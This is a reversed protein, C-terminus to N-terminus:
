PTSSAGEATSGARWAASAAIALAVLAPWSGSLRQLGTDGPETPGGIAVLVVAAGLCVAVAALELWPRLASVGAGRLALLALVAGAGALCAAAGDRAAFGGIHDSTAPIAVVAGLDHAIHDYIALGLLVGAACAAVLLAPRPRPLSSAGVAVALAAACRALLWGTDLGDDASAVAVLTLAITTAILVPRVTGVVVRQWTSPATAVTLLAALATAVLVVLAGPGQWGHGFGSIAASSGYGRM